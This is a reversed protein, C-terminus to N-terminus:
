RRAICRACRRSARPMEHAYGFDAVSSLMAELLRAARRPDFGEVGYAARLEAATALLSTRLTEWEPGAPRETMTARRGLRDALRGGLLARLVSGAGYAGLALGARGQGVGSDVLFLVLFVQVFAGLQNVFVGFLLWRVAPDSTRLTSGIAQERRESSGFLTVSRM